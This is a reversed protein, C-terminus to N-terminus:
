EHVLNRLIESNDTIQCFEQEFGIEIERDTWIHSIVHVPLLRIILKQNLKGFLSWISGIGGSMARLESEVAESRIAQTWMGRHMEAGWSNGATERPCFTSTWIRYAIRNRVFTADVSERRLWTDKRRAHIRPRRPGQRLFSKCCCLSKRRKKRESEHRPVGEESNGNLGVDESCNWTTRLGSWFPTGECTWFWCCTSSASPAARPLFISRAQRLCHV